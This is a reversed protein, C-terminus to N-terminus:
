KPEDNSKVEESKHEVGCIIGQYENIRRDIDDRDKTMKSIIAKCEKVNAKESLPKIHVLVRSPMQDNIPLIEGFVARWCLRAIKFLSLVVVALFMLVISGVVVFSVIHFFGINQIMSLWWWVFQIIVSIILACFAFIELWVQLKDLFHPYTKELEWTRKIARYKGFM